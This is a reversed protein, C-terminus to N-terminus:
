RFGVEVADNGDFPRSAGSTRGSAEAGRWRGRVM